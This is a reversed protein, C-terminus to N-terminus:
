QTAPPAFGFATIVTSLLLGGGSVALSWWLMRFAFRRKPEEATGLSGPKSAIRFIRFGMLPTKADLQILEPNSLRIHSLNRLIVIVVLVAGLFACIWGLFIAIFTIGMLVNM